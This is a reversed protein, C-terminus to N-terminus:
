CASLSCLFAVCVCTCQMRCSRVKARAADEAEHKSRRLEEERQLDETVDRGTGVCFDADHQFTVSWDIVRFPATSVDYGSPILTQFRHRVHCSHLNQRVAQDFRQQVEARDDPHALTALSAHLLESETRGLAQCMTANVRLLRGHADGVFMISASMEFFKDIELQHRLPKSESAPPILYGLHVAASAAVCKLDQTIVLEDSHPPANSADHIMSCRASDQLFVLSLAGWVSQESGIRVTHHCSATIGELAVCCRATQAAASAETAGKVCLVSSVARGGDLAPYAFAACSATHQMPHRNGSELRSYLTLAAAHLPDVVSARAAETRASWVVETVYADVHRDRDHLRKNPSSSSASPPVSGPKLQVAYAADAGSITLAAQLHARLAAQVSTYRDSTLRTLIDRATLDQGFAHVLGDAAPFFTWCTMAVSGDGRLMLAERRVPSSRQSPVSHLDAIAATIQARYDIVSCYAFLSSFPRGELPDSIRLFSGLSPSSSRISLPRRASALNSGAGADRVGGSSELVCFFSRGDAESGSISQM